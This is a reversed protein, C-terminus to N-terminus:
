DGGDDDPIPNENDDKGGDAGLGDSITVVKALENSRLADLMGALTHLTDESDPYDQDIAEQLENAAAAVDESWGYEMLHRLSGYRESDLGDSWAIVDSWGANSAVPVPEQDDIQLCYGMM